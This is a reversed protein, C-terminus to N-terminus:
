FWCCHCYSPCVGFRPRKVSSVSEEEITTLDVTATTKRRKLRSAIPENDDISRTPVMARTSKMRSTSIQDVLNVPSTPTAADVIVCPDDPSAPIELLHSEFDAEPEDVWECPKRDRRCKACKNAHRSDTSRRCLWHLTSKDRCNSCRNAM